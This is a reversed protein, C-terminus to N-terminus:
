FVIKYHVPEWNKAESTRWLFNLLITVCWEVFWKGEVAQILVHGFEELSLAGTNELLPRRPKPIREVPGLAPKPAEGHRWFLHCEDTEWLGMFSISSLSRHQIRVKNRVGSVTFAWSIHTSHVCLRIVLGARGRTRIWTQSGPHRRELTSTEM